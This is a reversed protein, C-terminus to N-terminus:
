LLLLTIGFLTNWHYKSDKGSKIILWQQVSYDKVFKYKAGSFQSNVNRFKGLCFHKSTRSLSSLPGSTTSSTWSLYAIVGSWELVLVVRVQHTIEGESQYKMVVDDDVDVASDVFSM